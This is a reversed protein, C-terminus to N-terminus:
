ARYPPILPDTEDDRHSRNPMEVLTEDGCVLRLATWSEHLHANATGGALRICLRQFRARTDTEATQGDARWIPRWTADDLTRIDIGWM